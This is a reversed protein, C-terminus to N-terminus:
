GNNEGALSIRPVNEIEAKNLTENDDNYIFRAQLNEGRLVLPLWHIADQWMKEYPISDLTFWTPIIEKSEEPNGKWSITSFVFSEMDWSSQAPFLFTLHGKHLLDEEKVLIGTEEQLERVAAATPTEGTEIRGGVGTYKGAGFGSKKFGLLVEKDPNERLPLCIITKIM